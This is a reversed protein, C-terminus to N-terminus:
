ENSYAHEIYIDPIGNHINRLFLIQKFRLAKKIRSLSIASMKLLCEKRYMQNLHAFPLAPHIAM